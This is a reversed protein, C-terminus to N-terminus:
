FLQINVAAIAADRWGYAQMVPEDARRGPAKGSVLAVMFRAPFSVWQVVSDDSSWFVSGLDCGADQRDRAARCFPPHNHHWGVIRYHQSRKVLEQQAEQFANPSFVFHVPSAAGDARAPIRDVVSVFTRGSEQVMVQGVLFDAREAEQSRATDRLLDEAVPRAIYVDAGTGEPLPPAAVYALPTRSIGVRLRRSASTRVSARVAWRLRSDQSTAEEVLGAGVVAEWYKPALVAVPFQKTLGALAVRFGAIRGGNGTEFVPEISVEPQRGDNPILVPYSPPSTFTRGAPVSIM